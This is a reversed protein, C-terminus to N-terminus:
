ADSTDGIDLISELIVKRQIPDPFARILIQAIRQEIRATIVESQRLVRYPEKLLNTVMRESRADNWLIARAQFYMARQIAIWHLSTLGPSKGLDLKIQEFLERQLQQVDGETPVGTPITSPGILSVSASPIQYLTGGSEDDGGGDVTIRGNGTAHDAGPVEGSGAPEYGGLIGGAGGDSGQSLVTIRYTRRRAGAGSEGRKSDM